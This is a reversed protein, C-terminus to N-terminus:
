ELTGKVKINELIFRASLPVETLTIPATSEPNNYWAGTIAIIAQTIHEPLEDNYGTTYTLEIETNEYVSPYESFNVYVSPYQSRILFYDTTPMTTLVNASDYYKVSEIQLFPAKDFRTKMWYTMYITQTANVISIGCYDEIFAIAADRIRIIEADDTTYDIKLANKITVLDPLPM